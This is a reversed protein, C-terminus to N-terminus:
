VFRPVYLALVGAVLVGVFVLQAAVPSLAASKGTSATASALHRFSELTSTDTDTDEGVSSVSVADLEKAKVSVSKRVPRMAVARPLATPATEIPDAVALIANRDEPRYSAVVTRQRDYLLGKLAVGFDGYKLPFVISEGSALYTHEPVTFSRVGDSVVFGSIESEHSADNHVTLNGEEDSGLVLALPSVVVESRVVIEHGQRVAIGVVVYRGPYAYRHVPTRETSTYGDGFSWSYRVTRLENEELGSPTAAFQAPQGASVRNPHSIVLSLPDHEFVRPGALTGNGKELTSEVSTIESSTGQSATGSTQASTDSVEDEGAVSATGIAYTAQWEVSWGDAPGYGAKVTITESGSGAGRYYFNRNASGSSIWAQVLSGTQGTFAGTGSSAFSLRLTETVHCAVGGSDQAQVALSMNADSTEWPGSVIAIKAVTCHAAFATHSLADVALVGCVLVLICTGSTMIKQCPALM